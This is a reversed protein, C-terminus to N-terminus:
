PQANLAQMASSGQSRQFNTAQRFKSSTPDVDMKELPTNDGVTQQGQDRTFFPNKWGKKLIQKYTSDPTGQLPNSQAQRLHKEEISRAYQTAFAHREHNAEIEQAMALASPLDRPQAAFLVDTLNRKLGSVFVRLADARYKENMYRAHDTKFTMTTKNTLLTLKKEVEEYFQTISMQGQRLTTLDQELLYLPRKDSYTFDLRSIIAEFNLITNFSSLISDASGRIKNRIILVAQYHKSSGDFRRFLEYSALAAQRWSVYKGQSDDFEPLSKVAELGEDCPTNGTVAVPSYVAIDPASLTAASFRDTVKQLKEEFEQKHVQLASSVAANIIAQLQQPDM